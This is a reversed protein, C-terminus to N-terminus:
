RLNTIRHRSGKTWMRRGSMMSMPAATPPRKKKTNEDIARTWSHSGKQLTKGSAQFYTIKRSEYVM